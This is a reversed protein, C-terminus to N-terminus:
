TKISCNKNAFSLDLLFSKTKIKALYEQCHLIEMFFRKLKMDVSILYKVEYGACNRSGDDFDCESSHEFMVDKNVLVWIYFGQKQGM